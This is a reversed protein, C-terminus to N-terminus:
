RAPEEGMNAIAQDMTQANAVVKELEASIITDAEADKTTVRLNTSVNKLGEGEM